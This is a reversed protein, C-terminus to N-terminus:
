RRVRDELRDFLRSAIIRNGAANQHLPDAQLFLKEKSALFADTVDVFPMGYRQSADRKAGWATPRRSSTEGEAPLHLLICPV